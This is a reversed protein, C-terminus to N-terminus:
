FPVDEFDVDDETVHAQPPSEFYQNSGENGGNNGNESEDRKGDPMMTMESAQCDWYTKKVGNQDTYSSQQMSGEILVLKGKKLFKASIEALKRWTVVNFFDTDKSGNANKYKRSVALSYKCVPIGTNTYKLEPDRTLRGVITIKNFM